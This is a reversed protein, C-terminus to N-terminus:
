KAIRIVIPSSHLNFLEANRLKRWARKVEDKKAGFIRRLVKNEFGRPRHEERLTQSWTECKYLVVPLIIAKNISSNLNRSL